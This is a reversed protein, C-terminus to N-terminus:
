KEFAGTVWEFESQWNRGPVPCRWGPSTPYPNASTEMDNIGLVFYAGSSTSCGNSGASYRYYRYTFGVSCTAGGIPDRPVEALIKEDVLPEIFPKGDGDNDVTSTDWCGCGAECEGYASTPGPFKEYKDFYLQLALVIQKIDQLRKSDRAKKRTGTTSVLVLSAILGIVAIVVLLEILTFGKNRMIKSTPV